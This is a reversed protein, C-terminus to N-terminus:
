RIMCRVILVTHVRFIYTTLIHLGINNCMVYWTCIFTHGLGTHEAYIKLRRKEGDSEPRIFLSTKRWDCPPTLRFVIIISDVLSLPSIELLFCWTPYLLISCAAFIDAERWLFVGTYVISPMPGRFCTDRSFSICRYKRPERRYNLWPMMMMMMLHTDRSDVAEEASATARVTYM